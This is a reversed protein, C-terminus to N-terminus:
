RGYASGLRATTSPDPLIASCIAAGGCDTSDLADLRKRVQQLVTRMRELESMRQEIDALRQDVLEATHGCPPQGDDRIALIERIQRLPLGAAQAALIFTIRDVVDHPYDRYGGATRAPPHLLGNAEWFRLAKTTVGTTQAVMGILM